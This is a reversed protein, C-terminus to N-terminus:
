SASQLDDSKARETQLVRTKAKIVDDDSELRELRSIAAGVGDEGRYQGFKRLPLGAQFMVEIEELSRGKLEPLFLYGCVCALFCM